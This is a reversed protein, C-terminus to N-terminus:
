RYPIKREECFRNLEKLQYAFTGHEIRKLMSTMRDSFAFEEGNTMSQMFTKESSQAEWAIFDCAQLPRFSKPRPTIHVGFENRAKDWLTGKDLDGDEFIFEIQRRPINREDCWAHALEICKAGAISYPTHGAEKLQYKKNLEAWEDTYISVLPVYEATKYTASILKRLFNEARGDNKKWKGNIRENSMFDTMHFEKICRKELIKGWHENFCDWQKVSAIYGGVTLMYGQGRQGAADFYAIYKKLM